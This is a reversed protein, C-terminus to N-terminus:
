VTNSINSVLTEKVRISITAELIKDKNICVCEKNM